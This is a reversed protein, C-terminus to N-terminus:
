RSVSRVNSCKQPLSRGSVEQSEAREKDSNGTEMGQRWTRGRDNGGQGQIEQRWTRGEDDGDQGVIEGNRHCSVRQGETSDKCRRSGM